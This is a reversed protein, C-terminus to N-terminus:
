PMTLTGRMHEQVCNECGVVRLCPPKPVGGDANRLRESVPRLKQILRLKEFLTEPGSRYKWKAFFRLNLRRETIASSDAAAETRTFQSIAPLLKRRSTWRM